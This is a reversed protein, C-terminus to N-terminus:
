LLALCHQATLQSCVVYIAIYESKRLLWSSVDSLRYPTSPGEDCGARPGPVSMASAVWSRRSYRNYEERKRVSGKVTSVEDWLFCTAYLRTWMSKSRRAIILWGLATFVSPLAGAAVDDVGNVDVGVAVGAM